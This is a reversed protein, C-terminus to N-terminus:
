DDTAVEKDSDNYKHDKDSTKTGEREKTNDSNYWVIDKKWGMKVNLEKKWSTALGDADIQVAVVTGEAFVM